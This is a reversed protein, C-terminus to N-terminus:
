EKPANSCQRRKRRDEIAAKVLERQLHVGKERAAVKLVKEMDLVDETARHKQRSRDGLFTARLESLLHSMDFIFFISLCSWYGMGEMNHRGVTARQGHLNTVVDDKKFWSRLLPLSDAFYVCDPWELEGHKKMDAALSKFDFSKGNHAVIVLASADAQCVGADV